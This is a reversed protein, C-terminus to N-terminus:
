ECEQQHLKFFNNEKYYDNRVKLAEELTKFTGLRIRKPTVQVVYKDKIKRIAGYGSNNNKYLPLNKSNEKKTCIRLNSQRNDLTNHNIHDVVLGKPCNTILRHLYIHKGTRCRLNKGVKFISLKENKIKEYDNKDILVDYYKGKYPLSLIKVKAMEDVSMQKIREYNNM